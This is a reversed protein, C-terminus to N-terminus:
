PEARCIMTLFNMAHFRRFADNAVNAGFSEERRGLEVDVDFAFVLLLHVNASKTIPWEFVLSQQTAMKIDNVGVITRIGALVAVELEFGGGIQPGMLGHVCALLLIRAFNAAFEEGIFRRQDLVYFQVITVFRELARMARFTKRLFAVELLVNSSM